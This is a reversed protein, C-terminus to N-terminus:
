KSRLLIPDLLRKVALPDRAIANRIRANMPPKPIDGEGVKHAPVTKLKKELHSKIYERSRAVAAPDEGALLRAATDNLVDYDGETDTPKTKTKENHATFAIEKGDMHEDVEESHRTETRFKNTAGVMEDMTDVGQIRGSMSQTRVINAFARMVSEPLISPEEFTIIEPVDSPQAPRPKTTDILDFLANTGSVEGAVMDLVEPKSGSTFVFAGDLESTPKGM